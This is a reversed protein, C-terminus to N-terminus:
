NLIGSFTKVREKKVGAKEEYREKLQMSNNYQRRVDPKEKAMNNIDKEDYGDFAHINTYNRLAQLLGQLEVNPTSKIELWSM